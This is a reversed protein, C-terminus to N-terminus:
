LKRLIEALEDPSPIDAINKGYHAYVIKGDPATVFCAPLQLEDGEFKGHKFGLSGGEIVKKVTAIGGVMKLKSAAPAIDFAKYLKMEPDAIIDFPLPNDALEKRLLAADSQLIVKVDGGASKIENYKEALRHIDLRCVTCGYYRLFLYATKKGNASDRLGANDANVTNVKFDPLIDGTKLKGIYRIEESKVPAYIEESTGGMSTCLMKLAQSLVSRPCAINMRVFGEGDAVFEDAYEIFLGAASIKKKMDLDSTNFARLDIWCLYTGEPITFGAEPLHKKLYYDVYKFNDDLYARMQELWGDCETYATLCADISVPNPMGCYMKMRWEQAIDTDPILINSLQNGALNFTKSPATATLLRKQLPYLTALPIHKMGTRTIDCHIEDSFIFVDNEFCIEAIKRLEEEKWVRGTPNHPSCLFFMTNNPDKAKKEFDEYDFRYYGGDNLLPSYVAKRGFKRVSDDFPHYAPTNIIIGDGHKTFKQVAVEMATIVGNSFIINDFTTDHNHRRKMFDMVAMYYNPDLLMSYGLIKKDIRAKMANRIPEPVAFDMDAIWMPICKDPLYPNVINATGYKVSNTNERDIIEDFDYITEVTGCGESEGGDADSGGGTVRVLMESIENMIEPTLRDPLLKACKSLPMNKVLGIQPHTTLGPAIKDVERRAEENAMLDKIKSNVTLSM